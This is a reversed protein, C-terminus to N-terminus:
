ARIRRPIYKLTYANIAWLKGGNLPGSFKLQVTRALGINTGYATQAETTAAGWLTNTAWVSSGWLMSSQSAGVELNFQKYSNTQEFDRYVDVILNMATSTQQTVFEPRRYMKTQVYSDANKWGTKYFSTYSAATGTINDQQASRIDLQLVYKLTPHVGLHQVLGTATVFSCGAALGVSDTTAFKTWTGEGITPDWIFSVTNYTATTVENYPVSLWIRRNIHNIRITSQLTSAIYNLDIAPRIKEFIDQITKGDYMMVGEPHSYFYVAQETAVVQQPTTVGLSRSVEVVQFTDSDYGFIAYCADQKFVLLHGSFPVLATIGTGHDNIDIYDSEAWNDPSNPHSWRVRNPYTTGNESTYAVWAKGAHTTAHRAKPFYGNTPSTYSAQWTPGNATLITTTQTTSDWKYSATAEGIAMYMINGWPAFSAGFTSTVPVSASTFNSGTSYLVDTASSLFLYPTGSYMAFLTKPAWTGPVVTSNIRQVGGRMFVGGRPDIEMNLMDPSENPALKFQDARLNLGGTFDANNYTSLKQAM